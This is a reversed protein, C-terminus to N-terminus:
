IAYGPWPTRYTCSAVLQPSLRVPAATKYREVAGTLAREDINVMLEVFRQVTSYIVRKRAVDHVMGSDRALKKGERGDGDADSNMCTLVIDINADESSGM